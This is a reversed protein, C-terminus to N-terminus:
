LSFHLVQFWLVGTLFQPSSEHCQDQHLTRPLSVLYVLFLLLSLFIPSCWVLFSRCLFFDTLHFPLMHFPFFIEFWRDSLIFFIHTVWVSWYCLSFLRIKFHACFRFLCQELISVCAALICSYISVMVLWLLSIYILIMIPVVACKNPHSNDLLLPLLHPCHYPPFPLNHM